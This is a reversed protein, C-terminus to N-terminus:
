MLVKGGVFMSYTSDKAAPIMSYFMNLRSILFRHLYFRDDEVTFVVVCCM